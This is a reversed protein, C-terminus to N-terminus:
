RAIIGFSQGLLGFGALWNCNPLQSEVIIGKSPYQLFHIERRL